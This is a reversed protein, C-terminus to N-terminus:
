ILKDADYIYLLVSSKDRITANSQHHTASKKKKLKRM